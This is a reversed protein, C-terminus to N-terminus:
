KKLYARILEVIVSLFSSNYDLDDDGSLDFLDHYIFNCLYAPDQDLLRIQNEYAQFVLEALMEVKKLVKEPDDGEIYVRDEDFFFGFGLLINEIPQSMEKLYNEVQAEGKEFGVYFIEGTDKDIKGEQKNAFENLQKYTIFM